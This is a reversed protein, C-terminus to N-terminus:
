RSLRVSKWKAKEVKSQSLYYREFLDKKSPKTSVPESIPAKTETDAPKVATTAPKTQTPLGNTPSHGKQVSPAPNSM